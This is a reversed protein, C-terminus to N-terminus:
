KATKTTSYLMVGNEDYFSFTCSPKSPSIGPRVRVMLFGGSAESQTYLQTIIGEPDTSDPDGPARGLRSNADVLAGCSFEEFGDPRVSHYQWHRDGCIIYFNKELFGNEFLWDFIAGGEYKFGKSNTHNDRKFFDTQTPAPWPVTMDDPGIMPTPSILLKFVADSGLLTQQLWARQAEGWLTKEPGDEMMNPSRYDRGETMWVQLLDNIRLTRYTVAEEEEPDTVPLQEPFTMIGLENSPAINTTTDSDNFRHDHDDKEWYTQVKSFLSLFRPQVFQWHWVMRLEERTRAPIPFADYYVNDGTGVLFDPKVQLLTELAPYGLPKDEPGPFFHFVFFNMGTVVAFNVERAVGQGDLTRFTCTSGTETKKQDTGFVLRYYYRTGSRLGKVRTKVIYDNEPLAAIWPTLFSDLFEPSTSLEFSAVGEMGPMDFGVLGCSATLRSQLIVSESTVEGAMEGQRHGIGYFVRDAGDCDQDVGDECIEYAGPHIAVKTDDCDTDDSVFGTPQVLADLPESPDGFGDRDADRYWTKPEDPMRREATDEGGNCGSSVIGFFFLLFSCKKLNESMSVVSPVRSKM